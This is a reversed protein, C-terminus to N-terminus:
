SLGLRNSQKSAFICSPDFQTKIKLFDEWNSYGAKFVAESMRADKTLYIRGDHELIIQDLEDLLPFIQEERKFDLALTYGEKPFSLLNKNEPGFKKLVSLFSGKGASSVKNLVQQIGEFAADSPIVFQYQVFGKSGYLKNWNAIGINDLPFFFSNYNVNSKQKGAKKLNFYTKNFISMSLKNILFGPTSFPINIGRSARYKLTSNSNQKSQSADVHEGLFVMSRGLENGRSLCDLWAVSYKSSNNEELLDFCERLNNAVLSQQQISTSSIKDLVITADVIIGTLGMGGCSAHFLESNEHESCFFIEGSALMLSISQVHNCFSGDVHHNKGHIDAAIAGGVSVYRTGPVVKLFLGRPICLKLIADLSVGAGCRITNQTENLELFSDLFRSSIIKDALSSDGYSRGAGRCILSDSKKQATVIKKLM